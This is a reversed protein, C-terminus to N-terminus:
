VLASCRIIRFSNKTCHHGDDQASQTHLHRITSRWKLSTTWTATSATRVLLEHM